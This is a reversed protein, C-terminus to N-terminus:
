MLTRQPIYNVFQIDIEEMYCYISLIKGFLLLYPTFVSCKRLIWTNRSFDRLVSGSVVRICGHLVKCFWICGQLGNLVKYLWTCGQVIRCLRPCGHVTKYLWTSGQVVMCLCSCGKVFMYLRTCCHVFMYLWKCGKVDM